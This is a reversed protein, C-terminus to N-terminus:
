ASGKLYTELKLQLRVFGGQQESFTVEDIVFFMRDRELANIFKAVQLYDGALTADMSMRQLGALGAAEGTYRVETVRVGNAGALKGLEEPIASAQAPLRDRYFGALDTEAQTLKKDMGRLPLSESMKSKLEVRLHDYEEQRSSRSRGLPSLLFAGAVVDLVLLVAVALTLKRRLEPVTPM